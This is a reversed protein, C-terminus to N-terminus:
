RLHEVGRVILVIEPLIAFIQGARVGLLGGDVEETVNGLLSASIKDSAADRFQAVIFNVVSRKDVIRIPIQNGLM